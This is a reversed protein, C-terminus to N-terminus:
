EAAAAELAARYRAVLDEGGDIRATYAAVISTGVRAELEAVQEDTLYNVTHRPLAEVEALADAEWVDVRQGAQRSADCGSHRELVARAEDSLADWGERAMFVLGMAGGGPLVLHDTTVEGLRFGPFATFNILTGEATGRQLAEYQDPLNISLPAGGYAQIMAAGIANGTMIKLGSVEEMTTVPRNNLHLAAQPFQVFLLPVINNMDAGFGGEQHLACAAAAGIEANPVMFPLTSVLTRPFRGPDFPTMGWVMQVVDDIVRDYFNAPGVLTSGYRMELTLVDPSDANVAEVWPTIIRTNVPHMEPNSMGFVVTEQAMAGTASVALCGAVLGAKVFQEM